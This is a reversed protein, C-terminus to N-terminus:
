RMQSGEVEVDPPRSALRGFAVGLAIWVAMLIWELPIAGPKELMPQCFAFGAMLVAGGLCLLVTPTGGPVAYGPSLPQRRRLKLLIVLSLVLVMAVCIVAMNVIPILAGKGLVMGAISAITVLLIANAPAGGRPNLRAFRAPLMGARAQALIIRSAMLVLANWTKALSALAVCLIIKGIIGNSNLADFAAVAPLRASLIERWPVISGAALIVAAYFIAAAVIGLVMSLTAARVSVEPARAEIVYLSSQFGNLLMACQAFIWFAGTSWSRGDPPDFMPQLNRPTGFVLGAVILGFMVTIFTYTVLRQFFVSSRVGSVNLVCVAAAGVFGLTLSVGTVSEDLMHYLPRGQATPVLESVLWALATGEFACLSVLFLTIFWGVIFAPARGLGELAYLFEGGARPMRAALEAYCTGILAMLAGGALLALLAGGPAARRLWEGLLIIWGSGVMSGFSLAFFGAPRIIRREGHFPTGELVDSPMSNVVKRV